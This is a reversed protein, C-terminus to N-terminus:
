FKTKQFESYKKKYLLRLYDLQTESFNDLKGAKGDAAMRKNFDYLDEKKKALNIHNIFVAIGKQEEMTLQDMTEEQEEDSLEEESLLGTIGLANLVARDFARKQAMNAPNRRGRAGLNRNNSEGIEIFKGNKSHELVCLITYQYGNQTSPQTLIQYDVARLNAKEAIKKCADHTLIQRKVGHGKTEWWDGEKLFDSLHVVKGGSMFSQDGPFTVKSEVEKVDKKKAM